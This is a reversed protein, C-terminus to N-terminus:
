ASLRGVTEDLQEVAALMEKLEEVPPADLSFAELRSSIQDVLAYAEDLAVSEACSAVLSRIAAHAHPDPIAGSDCARTLTACAEGIAGPGAVSALAIFIAGLAQRTSTEM